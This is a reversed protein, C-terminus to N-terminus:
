VAVMRTLYKKRWNINWFVTRKHLCDITISDTIAASQRPLAAIWSIGDIDNVVWKHLGTIDQASAWGFPFVDFSIGREAFLNTINAIGM